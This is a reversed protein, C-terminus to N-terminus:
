TRVRKLVIYNQYNSCVLILSFCNSCQKLLTASRRPKSRSLVSSIASSLRGSQFVSYRVDFGKTSIWWGFHGPVSQGVNGHASASKKIGLEQFKGNKKFKVKANDSIDDFEECEYDYSVTSINNYTEQFFLLIIAVRILFFQLIADELLITKLKHWSSRITTGWSPLSAPCFFTAFSELLGCTQLTSLITIISIIITTIITTIIIIILTTIVTTIIITIVTIFTLVLVHLLQRPSGCTRM